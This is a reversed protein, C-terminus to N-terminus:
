SFALVRSSKPIVELRFDSTRTFETFERSGIRIKIKERGDQKECSLTHFSNVSNVSNVMGVLVVVTRCTGRVMYGLRLPQKGGRFHNM